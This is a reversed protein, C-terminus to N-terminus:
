SQKQSPNGVIRPTLAFMVCSVNKSPEIQNVNKQCLMSLITFNRNHAEGGPNIKYIVTFCIGCM